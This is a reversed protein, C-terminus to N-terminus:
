RWVGTSRQVNFASRRVNHGLPLEPDIPSASERIDDRTMRVARKGHAFHEAFIWLAVAVRRDGSDFHKQPQGQIRLIGGPTM